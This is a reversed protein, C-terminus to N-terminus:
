GKEKIWGFNRVHVISECNADVRGNCVFNTILDIDVFSNGM